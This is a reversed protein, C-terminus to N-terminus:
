SLLLTGHDIQACRKPDFDWGSLTGDRWISRTTLAELWWSVVTCLSVTQYSEYETLFDYEDIFRKRVLCPSQPEGDCYVSLGQASELTLWGREWLGAPIWDRVQGEYSEIASGLSAPVFNLPLANILHDDSDRLLGNQWGFWIVLEEPAGLGVSRTADRVQNSGVGDILVDLPFGLDSLAKSYEGLLTTLLDPGAGEVTWGEDSKITKPVDM